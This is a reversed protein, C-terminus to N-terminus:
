FYRSIAKKARSSFPTLSTRSLPSLTITKIADGNQVRISFYGAEKGLIMAIAILASTVFLCALLGFKFAKSGFLSVFTKM